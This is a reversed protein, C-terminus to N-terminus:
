WSGETYTKRNTGIPKTSEFVPLAEFGGLRAIEAKQTKTSKFCGSLLTGHAFSGRSVAAIDGFGGGQGISANDEGNFLQFPIANAIGNIM